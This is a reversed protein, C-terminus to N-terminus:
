AEVPSPIEILSCFSPNTNNIQNLGLINQAETDLVDHYETLWTAGVTWQPDLDVGGVSVATKYELNGIDNYAIHVFACMKHMGLDQLRKVVVEPGLLQKVLNKTVNDVSTSHYLADHSIQTSLQVVIKRADRDSMFDYNFKSIPNLIKRM